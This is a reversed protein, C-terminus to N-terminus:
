IEFESTKSGDKEPTCIITTLQQPEIVPPPTNLILLHRRLLIFPAIIGVGFFLLYGITFPKKKSASFPVNSGPIGEQQWPQSLKVRSTTISKQSSWLVNATKTPIKKFAKFM